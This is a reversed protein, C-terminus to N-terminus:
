KEFWEANPGCRSVDERCVQARITGFHTISRFTASPHSTGFVYDPHGRAEEELIPNHLCHPNETSLTQLFRCNKCLLM